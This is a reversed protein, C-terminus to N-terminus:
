LNHQCVSLSSRRIIYNVSVHLSLYQFIRVYISLHQLSYQCLQVKCHFTNYTVIVHKKYNRIVGAM